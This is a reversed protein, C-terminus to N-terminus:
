RPSSMPRGRLRRARELSRAVHWRQHGGVDGRQVGLPGRGRADRQRARPRLRHAPRRRALPDLVAPQRHPVIRPVGPPRPRVHRVARRRGGGDLRHVPGGDGARVLEGRRRDRRRRVAVAPRRRVGDAAGGPTWDPGGRGPEGDVVRQAVPQGGGPPRAAARACAVPRRAPSRDARRRAAPGVPRGDGPAARRRAVDVGGGPAAASGRTSADSGQVRNLRHLAFTAVELHEDLAAVDGLDHLSTRGGRAVVAWLRGTLNAYALLERDGLQALAEAVAEETTTSGGRQGRARRSLTRIEREVRSRQRDAARRAAPDADPDIAAAGLRRLETLLSAMAADDPARVLPAQWVMTRMAEIRYLLERPRGDEIALRAGLEILEAGHHAAQARAELSGLGAQTAAVERLGASVARRAAARDGTREALMAIVRGLVVKDAGRGRSADSGVDALLSRADDLRGREVYLLAALLTSSLADSRWGGAALARGNM